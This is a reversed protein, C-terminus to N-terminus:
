PKKEIHDVVWKRMRTWRQEPTEEASDWPGGEDNWFMIECALPNAIGFVEGVGGDCGGDENIFKSMDIGRARGVSGLACVDCGNDFESAVLRKEPMADLDALLERLFAQGRKGRIASAVRGRWRGLELPDLDDSYGARSM